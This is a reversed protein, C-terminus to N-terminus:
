DKVEICLRVARGCARLEKTHRAPIYNAPANDRGGFEIHYAKIEKDTAATSTWYYGSRNPNLHGGDKRMGGAAPLFIAGQVELLKWEGESIINDKYYYCGAADSIFTTYPWVKPDWNNPLLIYGNVLTDPKAKGKDDTGIGKLVIRARGRLEAANKRSFFLSDYEAETPTRFSEEATGGLETNHLVGWDANAYDGVMSQSLADGLKYNANPLCEYPYCTVKKNDNSRENYPTTSPAEGADLGYWGSAGWPFLDIWGEYDKNHGRNNSCRNLKGDIEAWVTGQEGSPDGSGTGGVFDFARHAIRWTNHKPCYQLNGKAFRVKKAGGISFEADGVVSAGTTTFIIAAQQVDPTTCAPTTGLAYAPLLSIVLYFLIKKM